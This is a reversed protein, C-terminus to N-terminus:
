YRLWRNQKSQKARFPFSYFAIDSFDLTILGSGPESKVGIVAILTWLLPIVRDSGFAELVVDLYPRIQDPSWPKPHIETLIGSLKCYVQPRQAIARIAAAWASIEGSRIDPKAMHDVVFAQNPFRDVLAIVPRIYAPKLLLDYTLGFRALCSVGNVHAKSLAYDVDPMDHILERVGKLKAHASFQELQNELQGSDFDVWGIVGLIFRHREALELLWATETIMQRAQVAVSADIALENLM